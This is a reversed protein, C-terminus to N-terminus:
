VTILRIDKLNLLGSLPKIFQDRICTILHIDRSLLREVGRYFGEKRCELIGLEDVAVTDPVSEPASDALSFLLSEARGFADDYFIYRDLTYARKKGLDAHGDRRIFPMREESDIFLLDYGILGEDTVVAESLFGRCDSYGAIIKKATTTKGSHVGGTIVTVM